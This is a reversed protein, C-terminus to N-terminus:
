VSNSIGEKVRSFHIFDEESYMSGLLVAKVGLKYYENMYAAVQEYDGVLVPSYIGGNMYGGMWFVEDYTESAIALEALTRQWSSESNKKMRLQITGQRNGPYRAHAVKWAEEASERAIIEIRIASQVASGQVKDSFHRKFHDLPGPHTVVFDAAKLGTELGEESSGSMFIRPFLRKDPLQPKFELNNLEYYDGKFSVPSDSELLLRLVQVYEHLKKYRSSHDIYGGTQQLEGTVAGTIMNLDIRRNYLYTFSQILKAATYPPYMYPQLAILPVHRETHQMIVSSVAWPDLVSHNFFSLSGVIGYADSLQAIKVSNEMFEKKSAYHGVGPIQCYYQIPDLAIM